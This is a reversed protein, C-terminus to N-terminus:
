SLVVGVGNQGSSTDRHEPNRVRTSNAEDHLDPGVSSMPIGPLSIDSEVILIRNGHYGAWELSLARAVTSPLVEVVWEGRM